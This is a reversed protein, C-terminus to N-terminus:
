RWKWHIIERQHSPSRLQDFICCRWSHSRRSKYRKASTSWQVQHCKLLVCVCATLCVSWCLAWKTLVPSWHAAIRPCVSHLKETAFHADTVAANERYHSLSFPMVPCLFHAPWRRQRYFISFLVLKNFCMQAACHPHLLLLLLLLQRFYFTTSTDLTSVTTTEAVVRPLPWPYIQQPLTFCWIISFPMGQEGKLWPKECCRKREGRKRWESVWHQHVPATLHGHCLFFFLLAEHRTSWLWHTHRLTHPWSSPVARLDDIALLWHDTVFWNWLPILM